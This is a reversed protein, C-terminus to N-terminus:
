TTSSRSEVEISDLSVFGTYTGLQRPTQGSPTPVDQLREILAQVAELGSQVATEMEDTLPINERLRLLNEKAELLQAESSVKPIYHSCRACALLHPCTQFFDYTCYGHILDYYKWPKDSAVEQAEIADRDILVQIQRLNREFYGADTYAQALKAPTLAIYRQTANADQHGLWEKLQLFSMADEANALQTAITSRARHSTINGLTDSQPINMKRCLAPILTRNIYKLGITRHNYSFLFDEDTATVTDYNKASLPRIQQWHEISKGVIGDVAITRGRGSKGPPIELLCVREDQWHICSLRLRRIESRRLAAFLWVIALTRIMEIPYHPQIKGSALHEPHAYLDELELNLG